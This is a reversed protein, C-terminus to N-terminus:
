QATVNYKSVYDGQPSVINGDFVPKSLTLTRTLTVQGQQWNSLLVFWDVCSLGQVDHPATKTIISQQVVSDNVAFKVSLDTLNKSLTAQDRACWTLTWAYTQTAQVTANRTEVDPQNSETFPTDLTDDLSAMQSLNAAQGASVKVSGTNNGPQINTPPPPELGGTAVTGYEITLSYNGTTRGQAQDARTAAITYSGRQPLHINSFVADRGGASDDDYALIHNNADLLVIFSDLNGSTKKMTITVTEGAEVDFDWYNVYQANTITGGVQPKSSGSGSSPPIANPNNAVRGTGAGYLQQAGRVDDPGPQLNNPNYSPYMLASADSSHLLGIAHGFEHSAVGLFSIDEYGQPTGLTWPEASDFQIQGSCPSSPPCTEGLINLAGDIPAFQIVLDSHGSTVEQFTLPTVNAWSQFAQQIVKKVDQAKFNSLSNTIRYTVTKHDWPQSLQYNQKDSPAGDYYIIGKPTAKTILLSFQGGDSKNVNSAVLKYTGDASLVIGQLQANAKGGSNDDEGILHGQPDYLSLFPDINGGTFNMVITLKDGTKGAFTYETKQGAALTGTVAQNYQIAAAARTMYVPQGILAILFIAASVICLTKLRKM